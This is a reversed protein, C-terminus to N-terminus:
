ERFSIGTINEVLAALLNYGTNSYSYDAGPKFNLSAQNHVMRMIDEFSAEESWKWGAAVLTNPWDRLGSTHHLLRRITIVDGFDPVKPLYKRIDDDESLKGQQILTAIAYGTFQKSLSAVDFVSASTLPMNYELNALGYAKKFIVKGDRIVAVTCGPGTKNNYKAFVSDMMAETNASLRQAFVSGTLTCSLFIAVFGVIFHIKKMDM